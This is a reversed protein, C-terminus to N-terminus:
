VLVERYVDALGEATAKWTFQAARARGDRVARARAGGGDALTDLADAWAGPDGPDVAPCAGGSVEVLAPATSCVVPVGAAMAELVPLGFGESRSPVAVAVAGARLAALDRSSVHGLLDVRPALGADDVRARLAALRRRSWPGTLRLRLAPHRSRALADVLVGVNKHPEVSGSYLVYPDTQAHTVGAADAAAPVALPVVRVRRGDVGALNVVDRAVADTNVVVRAARRLRRLYGDYARRELARRPGALYDGPFLLPILDYCTEVCTMGRPAALGPQTAHFVEFAHPDLARRARGAPRPDPIGARGLRWPTLAIDVRRFGTSVVDDVRTLLAPREAAPLEAFGRIVGATAAGIGRGGHDGGLPTADMIVPLGM